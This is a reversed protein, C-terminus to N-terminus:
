HNYKRLIAELVSGGMARAKESITTCYNINERPDIDGIKLKDKVMTNSRIQGRLIGDIQVKVPTNDVYGAIQGKKVRDGINLESHFIGTCPARLVREHTYGGTNGPIGTNPEPSGNLIVRGLNHGRNTEIVMHVDKGAAFGPGLGIVLPAESLDTGLNKKAIIADIVVHPRIVKIAKWEPDILVPINNDQWTITIDEPQFIKKAKVGEVIINDDYIAECFSVQRRVAMPNPTEMIFINKFNSQFLRWAVGTALDGGGKVAIILNKLIKMKTKVKM